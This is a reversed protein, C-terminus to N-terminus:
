LTELHHQAFTEVPGGRSSHRMSHVAIVHQSLSGETVEWQM